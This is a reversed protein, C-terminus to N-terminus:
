KYYLHRLVLDIVATLKKSKKHMLDYSILDIATTLKKFASSGEVNTVM